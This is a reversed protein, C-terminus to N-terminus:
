KDKFKVNKSIKELTKEGIGKVMLLDEPKKCTVNRCHKSIALAKAPGIGTLAAAIEDVSAKNVNVSAASVSFSMILFTFLALYKLLM